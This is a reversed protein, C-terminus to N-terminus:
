DNPTLGYVPKDFDKDAYFQAYKCSNEPRYPSSNKCHQSSTGFPAPVTAVGYPLGIIYHNGYRTISNPWLNYQWFADWYLIDISNNPQLSIVSNFGVMVIRKYDPRTADLYVLRPADPLKTILTPKEPSKIDEIVSVSGGSYSLHALGEIIYLKGDLPLLSVINGKMLEHTEGNISVQLNGGWEGKNTGQYEINDIKLSINNTTTPKKSIILESNSTSVYYNNKFRQEDPVKKIDYLELRHISFLRDIDESFVDFPLIIGVGLGLSIITGNFFKRLM